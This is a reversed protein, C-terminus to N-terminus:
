MYNKHFGPISVVLNNYKVFHTPPAAQGISALRPLNHLTEPPTQPVPPSHAPLPPTEPDVSVPDIMQVSGSLLTVVDHLM